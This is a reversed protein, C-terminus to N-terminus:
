EFLAREPGLEGYVRLLGGLLIRAADIADVVVEVLRDCAEHRMPNEREVAGLAFVHQADRHIHGELAGLRQNLALILGVAARGEGVFQRVAM